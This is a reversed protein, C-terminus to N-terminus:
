EQSESFLEYFIPEFGARFAVKQSKIHSEITAYFPLIDRRLLEEKLLATVYTGIGKGAGETTVNVGIQWMKETDRTAAAMGLITEGDMACVALMDPTEEDFLLAQDFRDDGEFIKIEDQEYWKVPFLAPIESHEKSPIYYHHTDALVQGYEKLKYHLKILNAPESLWTGRENQFTKKCWDMIQEDAMILLKEQYVAIKLMTNEGGVPRAGKYHKMTRYINDYSRIEEVTCNYDVALQQELIEKYNM